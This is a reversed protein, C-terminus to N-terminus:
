SKLGKSTPWGRVDHEREDGGDSACSIADLEVFMEAVDEDVGGDKVVVLGCERMRFCYWCMRRCMAVDTQRGVVGLCVRGLVEKGWEGGM